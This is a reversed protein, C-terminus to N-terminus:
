RLIPAEIEDVGLGVPCMVFSIGSNQLLNLMAQHLTGIDLNYFRDPFQFHGNKECLKPFLRGLPNEYYPFHCICINKASGMFQMVATYPFFQSVDETNYLVLQKRISIGDWLFFSTSFGMTKRRCEFYKGILNEYCPFPFFLFHCVKRMAKAFNKRQIVMTLSM